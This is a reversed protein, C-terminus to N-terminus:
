RPVFAVARVPAGSGNVIPLPVAALYCIPPLRGLNVFNEGILIGAGLLAHHAPFDTSGGKAVGDGAQASVGTALVTSVALAWGFLAAKSFTTRTSV